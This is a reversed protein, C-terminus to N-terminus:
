ERQSEIIAPLLDALESALLGASAGHDRAWYEGAIAHLEVGIRAADFLDLPRDPPRPLTVGGPLTMSFEMSPVFQAVLGAIFGALVDGTGATALCPHGRRCTWTRMGDSVVTGSGKLVIIRGLRQALHECAQVRSAALGFDSSRGDGLVSACLTKFEGPHPTLIAPARFDKWFEPLMALANLGDADLVIPVRDQSIARMVAAQSGTGTGLGPGVVLVNAWTIARDICAAAEHPVMEGREDIPVEWGTASPCLHLAAPLVLAPMLLKVLGTGARLAARAALAPAGPMMTGAACTGGIVCVAGYTGKHTDAARRPLRPLSSGSKSTGRTDM